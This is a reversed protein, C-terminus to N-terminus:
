KASENPEWIAFYNNEPDLCYAYYGMGVVATKSVFVKGGLKEIKASYEEVSPVSIWIVIRQQPDQREEIAGKIGDRCGPVATDIMWYEYETQSEDKEIKWNFLESYFKRIKEIDNAPIEFFCITPM